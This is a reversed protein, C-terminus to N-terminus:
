RKQLHARGESFVVDAPIGEANEDIRREIERDWAEAVDAPAESDSDHELSVLLAEAAESREDPSLKLLEEVAKRAPGTMSGSYGIAAQM